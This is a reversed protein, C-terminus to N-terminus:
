DQRGAIIMALALPYVPGSGADRLLATIVTFTWRSDVIDDVLLVPSNIGRWPKVRFAGNLNRAQQYSNNMLKQPRNHSIKEVCEVIPIGLKASLRRAFDPVLETKALSPVCTIWTPAPDPHWRDCYLEVAADVLRDDFRKDVQKGKRVLTGWGVDGWMSLARGEQSRLGDPIAGSWGYDLLADKPWRKRPSIIQDSRQM